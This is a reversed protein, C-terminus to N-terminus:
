YGKRRILDRGLSAVRDIFLIGDLHDVEHQIAIAELGSAAIEFEEGEPTQARVIVRRARKVDGLFEPISLCGERAIKEGESHVITPNVFAQFGNNKKKGIKRSVDIIFLRYPYGIQPAAIGVCGTHAYMTERMDAVLTKLGDDFRVVRKCKARLIPHPYRLVHLIPM